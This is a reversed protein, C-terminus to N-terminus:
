LLHRSAEELAKDVNPRIAQLAKFLEPESEQFSQQMAKCQRALSEGRDTLSVYIVREDQQSRQRNVLGNVEMRKLLPTLTNTNLVLRRGIERVPLKDEPLLVLLVLYQPYTISLADLFPQQRRILVRALAAIPFCCLDDIPSSSDSM